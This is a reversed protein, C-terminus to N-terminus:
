WVGPLLRPTAVAYKAYGPITMLMKEEVRVRRILAALLLVLGTVSFASPFLAVFGIHAGLMGSYAPHRIRAYPGGTVISHSQQQEVHHSYLRGLVTIAWRRLAIGGVFLACPLVMWWALGTWPLPVLVAVAATGCRALAYPLLTPDAPASAARRAFTIPVESLLWGLYIVTLGFAAAYQPRQIAAAQRVLALMLAAVAAILVAQHSRRFSGYAIVLRVSSGKM